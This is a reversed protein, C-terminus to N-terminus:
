PSKRQGNIDPSSPKIGSSPLSNSTNAHITIPHLFMLLGVCLMAALMDTEWDGLNAHRYSMFGQITEDLAGLLGILILTRCARARRTGPMGAFVLVSLFSYALIHLFKDYVVASLANAKGPIAGLGIMLAFFVFAMMWCRGPTFFALLPSPLYSQRPQRSSKEMLTKDKIRSQNWCALRPLLRFQRLATELSQITAPLRLMCELRVQM